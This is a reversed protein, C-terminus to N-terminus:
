EEVLLEEATPADDEDILDYRLVRDIANQVTQTNIPESGFKQYVSQDLVKTPADVYTDAIKSSLGETTNLKENAALISERFKTVKDPNSEAYQESTIYSYAVQDVGGPTYGSLKKIAPDTLAATGAPEATTVVDVSGSKLASLTNPVEVFKIKSSDGGAEDVATRVDIWIQSKTQPIGFTANEIDKISSISSDKSVWFNGTGMGESNVETGKAGPAVMVVPVGKSRAMVPTTVDMLGFDVKGGLIQPTAEAPTAVTVFEVDLGQEAFTGEIEAAHAGLANFSPFVAVKIDNGAQPGVDGQGGCAGLALAAVVGGALALRRGPRTLTKM